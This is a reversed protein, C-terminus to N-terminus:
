PNYRINNNIVGQKRGYFYYIFAGIVGTLVLILVWVLKEDKGKFERKIVDILMFIWLIAGGVLFVMMALWFVFIFLMWLGWLVIFPTFVLAAEKDSLGSEAALALAPFLLYLFSLAFIMKKM